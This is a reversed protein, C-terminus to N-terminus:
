LAFDKADEYLDQLVKIFDSVIERNDDKHRCLVCSFHEDCDYPIWAFQEAYDNLFGPALCVGRGAFVNIRTTDHDPSNFYQVKGTSIIRNQVRRLADPSGGGVMLTRGYLDKEEILSKESLPDDKRVILYIRSKYLPFVDIGQVHRTNEELAFVIDSDGKLFSEMSGLYQFLPTILVDSYKESFIKIAEPLLYLAQWVMASIIIGEKYKSSFNQGQEIARKLIEKLSSLTTIFQSGAPTVTVTKGDRNFIKFRVEDELMKIQYSFTPQSIFVNEAARTFNLTKSLEICYDIQQTTM